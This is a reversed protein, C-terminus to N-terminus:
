RGGSYYTKLSGGISRRDRQFFEEGCFYQFYPNEVWRDCLVEDSLDYPMWTKSEHRLLSTSPRSVVPVFHRPRGHRTPHTAALSQQYEVLRRRGVESQRDYRGAM